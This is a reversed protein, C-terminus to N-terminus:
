TLRIGICCFFNKKELERLKRKIRHIHTEVTGEKVGLKRAIEEYTFKQQWLCFMEWQRSTLNRKVIINIQRSLDHAIFEEEQFYLNQETDVQNVTNSAHRQVVNNHNCNNKAINLAVTCIYNFLNMDPQIQERKEWLRLFTDEAIDEVNEVNCKQLFNILAQRYEKYIDEFAKRDGDKFRDITQKDTM